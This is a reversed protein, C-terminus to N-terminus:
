LGASLTVQAGNKKRALAKVLIRAPVAKLDHLCNKRKRAQVKKGKRGSQFFHILKSM